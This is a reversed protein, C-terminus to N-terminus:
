KVDEISIPSLSGVVASRLWWSYKSGNFDRVVLTVTDGEKMTLCAATYENSDMMRWSYKKGDVIVSFGCARTSITTPDSVRLDTAKAYVIEKEDIACAALFSCVIVFLLVKQFRM